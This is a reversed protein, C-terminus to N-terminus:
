SKLSFSVLPEYQAGGPSLRSEYLAFERVEWPGAALSDHKVLWRGVPGSSRNLRALTIHPLFKRSDPPTGARRCALAVRQRLSTLRDNRAIRAWLTTSVGKRDFHGVGDVELMFPARRVAALQEVLAEGERVDIEGLFALTLHLQDEDQWRVGPGDDGMAALLTERVPAPPRLAVFLRPM